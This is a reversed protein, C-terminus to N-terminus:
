PGGGHHKRREWSRLMLKRCEDAFLLLPAWAFLFLWNELSFAQTGVVQQLPPAYVILAIIALESVVGAWLLRNSFPGVQLVSLRETRQAFLNGIQTTVVCALAM